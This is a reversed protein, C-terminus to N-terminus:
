ENGADMAMPDFCGIAQHIYWDRGDTVALVAGEGSLFAPINRGALQAMSGSFVTKKENTVIAAGPMVEELFEPVAPM